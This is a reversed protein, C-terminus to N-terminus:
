RPNFDIQYGKPRDPHMIKVIACTDGEFPLVDLEIEKSEWLYLHTCMEIILWNQDLICM